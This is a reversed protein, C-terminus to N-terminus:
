PPGVREEQDGHGDGEEEGDVDDDLVDQAGDDGAVGGLEAGGGGDRRGDGDRKQEHRIEPPLNSFRKLPRVLVLILFFDHKQQRFFTLSILLGTILRHANKLFFM